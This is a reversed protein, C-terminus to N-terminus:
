MQKEEMVVCQSWFYMKGLHWMIILRKPTGELYLEITGCMWENLILSLNLCIFLFDKFKTISILKQPYQCGRSVMVRLIVRSASFSDARNKGCKLFPNQARAQSL